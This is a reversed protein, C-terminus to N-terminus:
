LERGFVIIIKQSDRKENLRRFKLLSGPEREQNMSRGVDHMASGTSAQALLGCAGAELGLKYPPEQDGDKQKYSEAQARLKTPASELGDSRSWKGL